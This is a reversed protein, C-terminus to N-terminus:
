NKGLFRYRFKKVKYQLPNKKCSPPLTKVSGPLLAVRSAVATLQSLETASRGVSVTFSLEPPKASRWRWVGAYLNPRSLRVPINPSRYSIRLVFFYQPKERCWWRIAWNGHSSSIRGTKTCDASDATGENLWETRLRQRTCHKCHKGHTQSVLLSNPKTDLARTIDGSKTKSKAISIYRLSM